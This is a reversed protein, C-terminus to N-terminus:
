RQRGLQFANNAAVAAMVGNAVILTWMACGREGHRAIRETPVIVALTVGTKVGVFIAPHRVAVHMIPGGERAGRNVLVLTSYTDFAELVVFTAQALRLPRSSPDQAAAPTACLLVVVLARMAGGASADLLLSVPTM